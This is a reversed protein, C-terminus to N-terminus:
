HVYYIIGLATHLIRERKTMGLAFVEPSLSPASWLIAHELMEMWPPGCPQVHIPYNM